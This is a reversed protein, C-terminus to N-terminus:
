VDGLVCMVWCRVCGGLVECRVWCRVCEDLMDCGGLMECM